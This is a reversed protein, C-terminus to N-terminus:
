GFAAGGNVNTNEGTIFGAEKSLLWIATAAQEEPQSVRGLAARSAAGSMAEESYESTMATEVVGPSLANVRIGYKGWSKALTRVLVLVGGKSTTYAPGGRGNEGTGGMLVGGSATLVMSGKVGQDIMVKAAEKAMLFSGTVNTSLIRNFEDEDAGEWNLKSHAAAFHALCDVGGFAEVARGTAAQATETRAVDGAVLKLKGTEPGLEAELRDRDLDLAVVRNNESILRRACARGIGSAAGTVIITKDNLM